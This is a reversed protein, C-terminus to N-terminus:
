NPVIDSVQFIIKKIHFLINIVNIQKDGIEVCLLYFYTKCNQAEVYRITTMITCGLGITRGLTSRNM